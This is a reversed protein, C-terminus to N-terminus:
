QCAMSLHWCQSSRYNLDVYLTHRQDNVGPLTEALPLEDPGVAIGQVRDEVEALSYSVWWTLRRESESKLYLEIGRASTEEIDVRFRDSLM